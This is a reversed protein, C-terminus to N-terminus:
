EVRITVQAAESQPTVAHIVHKGRSPDWLFEYPPPTRAVEVGNLLWVVHEVLPDSVARFVVQNRRNRSLVFCDLNHPSTIEIRHTGRSTSSSAGTEQLRDNDQFRGARDSPRSLRFRGPGQEAERGHVWQAYDGGLYYYQSQHALDCPLIKSNGVVLERVKHPCRPSATKGSMACVLEERVNDPKVFADPKGSRYLFGIIEKLIPGCAGSGMVGPSSRGDFNGAWIGVIHRTTYGITWADRYNSSTGTKLAVPFGFDFHDPNGFTLLRASPDALINTIVYATEPSFLRVGPVRREELVRLPRYEGNDALTSYAQVLQYLSVELNGVALGLGYRETCASNVFSFGLGDLLRCFSQVGLTNIMKVAPINLSGGLASRITVPGYSRRDANLPLYDGHPTPYSRFTDAMESFSFYGNELALAYLFPKLTSGAGRPAVVANNFGQNIESYNLSGVMGLVEGERSAVLAGAQTIGMRNLRNRQSLLVQELARQIGIDITTRAGNEVKSRRSKLVHDVFHHAKMPLSYHQFEVSPGLGSLMQEKSISGRAFMRELIRDKQAQLLGRGLPRRPNYRSPSRPLAALTAAEALSIHEIDKGFYTRSALGVGVLNGGMPSLNLYLELIKEKSLQREMKISEFIEVAKALYTRPRPRILRVVQQTITSAGSVIRGRQVNLFFARLVAIPDFGPHYYFRQDEAAIVAEIMHQPVRDIECWLGFRGKKDPLLRLPEGTRDAVAAGYLFRQEELLAHYDPLSYYHIIALVSLLLVLAVAIIYIGLRARNRKSFRM